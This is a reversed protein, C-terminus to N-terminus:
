GVLLLGLRLEQEQEAAIAEHLTHDILEIASAPRACVLYCRALGELLQPRYAPPLLREWRLAEFVPLAREGEGRALLARAHALLVRTRLPSREALEPDDLLPELAVVAAAAGAAGGGALELEAALLRLECGERRSVPDGSQLYSVTVGLRRALM